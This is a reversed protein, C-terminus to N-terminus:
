LMKLGLGRYTPASGVVENGQLLLVHNFHEMLEGAKAHRMFVPDGLHLPGAYRIPTQVEGTGEQPMLQAGAPFLISPQKLVGVEGSAIYGGGLCTYIGKKPSRVVEIAYGAAPALRFGTYNDFLTPSYFGSGVTVETVCAETCTTDMSGTGGGNVFLLRHGSRAIADVTQARREAIERVSRGKLWRVVTNMLAKGPVNDGLGAIQAEYGMLGDLRVHTCRGIEEAVTRADAPRHVSSRWVGFHLGPLDTSMDMDLCVPVVTGHARGLAQLHRVHEVSDIMLWLQVGNRVHGLLPMIDDAYHCPYGILLDDFGNRALHDAERASYCMIGKYPVGKQLIRRLMEPVRVSKSAVRVHKGLAMPAIAAVNADFLDLDIYAFPMQQGAFAKRYMAHDPQPMPTPM